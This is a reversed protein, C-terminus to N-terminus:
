DEEGAIGENLQGATLRVLQEVALVMDKNQAGMDKQQVVVM